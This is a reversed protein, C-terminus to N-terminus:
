RRLLDLGEGVVVTTFWVPGNLGGSGTWDFIRVAILNNRGPQLFTGVEVWTRKLYSSESRDMKGYGGAKRGNVYLEYMDDVSDFVLRLLLLTRSATLM